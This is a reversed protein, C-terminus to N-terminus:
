TLTERARVFFIFIKPDSFTYRKSWCAEFFMIFATQQLFYRYLRVKRAIKKEETM